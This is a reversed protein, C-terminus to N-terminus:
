PGPPGLCEIGRFRARPPPPQNRAHSLGEHLLHHRRFSLSPLNTLNTPGGDAWHIVHHADTRTRECGPYQCQGDRRQLALKQLRSITRRKRGLDLVNGRNDETITAVTADCAVRRATHASLGPGDAVRCVGAPDATAPREPGTGPDHDFDPHDLLGQEVNVHLLYRDNSTNEGATQLTEAGTAVLDILADLTAAGHPDRARQSFAEKIDVFQISEAIAATLPERRLQYASPVSSTGTTEHHYRLYRGAQRSAATEEAARRSRRVGQHNVRTSGRHLLRRVQGAFRGSQRLPGRFPACRRTASRAPRM